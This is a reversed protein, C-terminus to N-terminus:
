SRPEETHAVIQQLLNLSKEQTSYYRELLDRDTWRGSRLEALIADADANVAMWEAHLRELAKDHNEAM